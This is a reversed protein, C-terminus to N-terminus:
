CAIPDSGHLLGEFPHMISLLFSSLSLLSSETSFVLFPLFPSWFIEDNRSAKNSAALLPTRDSLTSDSEIFSMLAMLFPKDIESMWSMTDSM